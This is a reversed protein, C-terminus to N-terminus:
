RVDLWGVAGESYRYSAVTRGTGSLRYITGPNPAPYSNGGNSTWIERCEPRGAAVAPDCARTVSLPFVQESGYRAITAPLAFQGLVTGNPNVHFIRAGTGDVVWVSDDYPDAALVDIGTAMSVSNTTASSAFSLTNTGEIM